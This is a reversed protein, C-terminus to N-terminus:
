MWGRCLCVTRHMNSVWRSLAQPLSSIIPGYGASNDYLEFLPAAVLKYNRPVAFLAICFIEFFSKRWHNIKKWALICMYLNFQSLFCFIGHISSEVLISHVKKQYNSLSYDKTNRPNQSTHQSTHISFLVFISRSSAQANCWRNSIDNEYWIIYWLICHILIHLTDNIM